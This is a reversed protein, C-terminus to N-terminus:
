PEYISSQKVTTTQIMLPNYFYISVKAGQTQYASNAVAGIQLTGNIRFDVLPNFLYRPRRLNVVSQVNLYFIRAFGIIRAFGRNLCICDVWSCPIMWSDLGVRFGLGVRQVDWGICDRHLVPRVNPKRYRSRRLLAAVPCVSIRPIPVFRLPCATSLDLHAENLLLLPIVQRHHIRQPTIYPRHRSDFNGFRLWPSVPVAQVVPYSLILFAAEKEALTFRNFCDYVDSLNQLPFLLVPKLGCNVFASRALNTSEGLVGSM